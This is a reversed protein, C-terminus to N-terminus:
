YPTTVQVIMNWDVLDVDINTFQEKRALISSGQRPQPHM